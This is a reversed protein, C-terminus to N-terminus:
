MGPGALLNNLYSKAEASLKMRDSAWFTGGPEEGLWHTDLDYTWKGTLADWASKIGRVYHVYTEGSIREIIQVQDDVQIAPNGPITLTDTRYEFMQRVAILDAMVQCEKTSDFREDTWGGVRRLGAPSPNYGKAVAGYKGTVNAVFVKERVNRSSLKVRLSLLTEREDITVMAATRAKRPGGLANWLYNGKRYVNPLRWIAGGLEDVFFCFGVIDRIASIGDMLSKKDFTQSDLPVQNYTGTQMLDGWVRGFPLNRYVLRRGASRENEPDTVPHPLTFTKSDQDGADWSVVSGDSNLYSADKDPWWFGGWALFWEVIETYDGVNGEMRWGGDRMVVETDGALVQVDYVGCRWKYHGIGANKMAGLTIRVMTSAYPKDLPITLTGNRPVEVVKVYPKDAHTDLGTPPGPKYPVKASGHWTGPPDAGRWSDMGIHEGDLLSVYCTYPGGWVKVKVAAVQTRKFQGQVYEYASRENPTAHGGSLFYTSSSGDFADMGNHGLDLGDGGYGVYPRDGDMFGKRKYVDGTDYNYFPRKWGGNFRSSPVPANKVNHFAEWYMPYETWPVIPPLIIEDMLVRAFDRCRLILLTDDPSLEIDDILWTGSPYLHPDAEPALDPDYGYGEYTKVVRDPVLLDAWGNKVQGWRSRSLDSQGRSFTFFGPRDLTGGTAEDGTPIQGIPLIETNWCTITCTAADSDISREWEVKAVNPLEVPQDDQAWYMSAFHGKGRKKRQFTGVVDAMDYPTLKSWMRGVTARAIPRTTTGGKIQAQWASATQATTPKM